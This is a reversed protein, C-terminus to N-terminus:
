DPQGITFIPDRLALLQTLQDILRDTPSFPATLQFLEITIDTLAIPDVDEIYMRLNASAFTKDDRAVFDAFNVLYGVRLTNAGDVSIDDGDSDEDDPTESSIEIDVMAGETVEKVQVM